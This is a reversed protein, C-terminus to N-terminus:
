REFGPATVTAPLGLTPLGSFEFTPPTKFTAEFLTASCISSPAPFSIVRAAAMASVTAPATPCRANKAAPADNVLVRVPRPPHAAGAFGDRRALTFLDERM